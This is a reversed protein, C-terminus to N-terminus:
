LGSFENVVTFHEGKRVLILENKGTAIGSATSPAPLVTPSAPTGPRKSPLIVITSLGSSGAAMTTQFIAFLYDQNNKNTM